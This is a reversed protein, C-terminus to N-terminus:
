FNGLTWFDGLITVISSYFTLEVNTNFSTKVAFTEDFSTNFFLHADQPSSLNIKAKQKKSDLDVNLQRCQKSSM